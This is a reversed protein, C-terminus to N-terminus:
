VNMEVSWNLCKVILEDVLGGIVVVLFFGNLM